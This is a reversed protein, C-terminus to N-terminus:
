DFPSAGGQEGEVLLRLAALRGRDACELEAKEGRARLRDYTRRHM